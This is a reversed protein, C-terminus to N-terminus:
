AARDLRGATRLFRPIHAAEGELRGRVWAVGIDRVPEGAIEIRGTPQPVQLSGVNRGATWAALSGRPPRFGAPFELSFARHAPRVSWTSWRRGWCQNLLDLQFRGDRQRPRLVPVYAEAFWDLHCPDYRDLVHPWTVQRRASCFQHQRIITTHRQ